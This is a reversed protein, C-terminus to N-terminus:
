LDCAQRLRELRDKTVHESLKEPPCRCMGREHLSACKWSCWRTEPKAEREECCHCKM